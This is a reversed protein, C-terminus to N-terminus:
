KTQRFHSEEQEKVMGWYNTENTIKELTSM